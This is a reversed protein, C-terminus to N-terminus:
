GRMVKNLVKGLCIYSNSSDIATNSGPAYLTPAYVGNMTLSNYSRFLIDEFTEGSSSSTESSRRWHWMGIVQYVFSDIVIGSLHYSSFYEDRIFRLYKCTDFLLGNSQDICNKARMAEQEKKPNTSRWNGGMNSDPYVYSVNGWYDTEKFAPLLEFKIGDSFQIVVVQGDSHISSRPYPIFICNKVAQLLRSQGNGKLRDYHYYEFRPLEVLIDIDSTSIATGRGYSGVYLGHLQDSNSNWFEQNIAKVIKHYRQSILSRTILNIRDFGKIIKPLPNV